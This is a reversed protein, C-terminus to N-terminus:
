RHYGILSAVTSCRPGDMVALVASGPVGRDGSLANHPPFLLLYGRFLLAFTRRQGSLVQGRASAATPTVLMRSGVGLCHPFCGRVGAVRLESRRGVSWPGYKAETGPCRPWLARHGGGGPM